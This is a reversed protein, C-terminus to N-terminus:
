TPEEKTPPEPLCSQRSPLGARRPLTGKHRSNLSETGRRGATRGARAGVINQTACRLTVQGPIGLQRDHALAGLVCIQDNETAGEPGQAVPGAKFLLLKGGKNPHVRRVDGADLSPAPADLPAGNLAEEGGEVGVQVLEGVRYSLDLLLVRCRLASAETM